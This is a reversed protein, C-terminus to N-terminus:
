LQCILYIICRSHKLIKNDFEFNSDKIYMFITKYDDLCVEEFEYCKLMFYPLYKKEGWESYETRINLTKKLFDM